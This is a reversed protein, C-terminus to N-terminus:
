GRADEVVVLPHRDGFWARVDDPTRRVTEFTAMRDDIGENYIRCMAAADGPSAPRARMDSAANYVRADLARIILRSVSSVHRSAAAAVIGPRACDVCPTVYRDAPPVVSRSISSSALTPASTESPSIVNGGFRSEPSWLCSAM